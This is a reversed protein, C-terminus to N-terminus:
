GVGEGYRTSEKGKTLKVMADGQREWGGRGDNSYSGDWRQHAISMVREFRCPVQQDASSEPCIETSEPPPDEYRQLEEITQGCRDCRYEFLPM